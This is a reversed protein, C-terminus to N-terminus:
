RRRRIRFPFFRPRFPFFRPAGLYAVLGNRVNELAELVGERGARLEPAQWGTLSSLYGIAARFRDDLEASSLPRARV